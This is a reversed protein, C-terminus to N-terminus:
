RLGNFTKRPCLDLCNKESREIKCFISTSLRYSVFIQQGRSVIEDRGPVRRHHAVHFQEGNKLATRPLHQRRLVRVHGGFIKIGIQSKLTAM